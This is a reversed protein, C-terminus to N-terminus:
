LEQRRYSKKLPYASVVVIKGDEMVYIVKLPMSKFKGKETRLVSYRKGETGPGVDPNAIAKEIDEDTIGYLAM